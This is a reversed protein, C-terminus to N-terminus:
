NSTGISSALSLLPTIKTMFSECSIDNLSVLFLFARSSIFVGFCNWVLLIKSSSLFLDSNICWNFSLPISVSASLFFKSFASRPILCLSVWNLLSFDFAMWCFLSSFDEFCLNSCYCHVIRVRSLNAATACPSEARVRSVRREIMWSIAEAPAAAWLLLRHSYNPWVRLLDAIYELSWGRLASLVWASRYTFVTDIFSLLACFLAQLFGM